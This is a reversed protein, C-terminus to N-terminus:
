LVTTYRFMYIHLFSSQKHLCAVPLKARPVNSHRPLRGGAKAAAIARCWHQGAGAAKRSNRLIDDLTYPCQSSWYGEGLGVGVRGTWRGCWM